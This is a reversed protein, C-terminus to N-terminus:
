SSVAGFSCMNWRKGILQVMKTTIRYGRWWMASQSMHLDLKGGEKKSIQLPDGGLGEKQKNPSLLKEFGGENRDQKKLSLKGLVRVGSQENLKSPTKELGIEHKNSKSPTNEM